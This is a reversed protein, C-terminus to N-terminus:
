TSGARHGSEEVTSVNSSEAEAVETQTSLFSQSACNRISSLIGLLILYLRSLHAMITELTDLHRKERLNNQNLHEFETKGEV